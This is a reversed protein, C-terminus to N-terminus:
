NWPGVGPWCFQEGSVVLSDASAERKSFAASSSPACM